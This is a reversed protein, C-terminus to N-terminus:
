LCARGDALDCYDDTPDNMLDNLLRELLYVETGALGVSLYLTLDSDVRRGPAAGAAIAALSTVRDAHGSTAVVSPPDYGHLQALSDTAVLDAEEVLGLGFESRGPQKPGVTTVHTGPALWDPELVPASSNTALVVIDHERVAAEASGAGTASVGLEARVRNAFADAHSATRSYVSVRDIDRVANLAWIQRWAQAGSGIVGVSGADARSLLDVALGGLAGTRVQGLANGVAIGRVRGTQASHVVVVQEGPDTDLTDYSRYGFWEGRLAGATFVLRGEELDIAVRAPASLDGAEAAVVAERMWGVARGPDALREVTLDDLVLPRPAPLASSPSSTTM